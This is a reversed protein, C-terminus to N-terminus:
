FAIETFIIVIHPDFQTGANQKIREIAVEHDLAKRYPRDNTMADYADVVAVIRSILPICEGSLGQPYGSGNWWEHHCLIGEAIPVLEPSTKAIRYGIEPHRKMEVWEMENLESQKTLIDDRIGVKGIDHLSALLVLKDLEAQSLGLAMGVAKSLSVLRQAHEETEHSKEFMTARISSVIASHASNHELLKRQYMYGEAIKIIEKIDEDTSVKTACGLSVSHQYIDSANKADFETIAAQIKRLVESAAANDTNPLLIIFEDGGIRALVDGERCCDKLIMATEAIHKDGASHGFADNIFKVGNIDGIIVSLPFLREDDIRKLEAEFFRRNYVGTLYDYKSLNILDAEAQKRATIDILFGLFRKDSIKVADVSWWRTSGDKHCYKLEASMKGTELLSKLHYVAEGM